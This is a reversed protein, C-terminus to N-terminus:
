NPKEKTKFSIGRGTVTRWLEGLFGCGLGFHITPYIAPLLPLYKLGKRMAIPVSWLLITLMYFGASGLLAYLALSWFFSLFILLPLGATFLAIVLTGTGLTGPHKRALRFRGIGYRKLQTFLAVLTERPYYMVALKMSTFSENWIKSVRYNFEVDECADFREDFYGVEEFVEKKYSAGSSTPNVYVEKDNYITSDLGHGIASKRALAVAQQFLTNDPPELFQPRSLVSVNKEAMLRATNMLLQNNDIFTHGDIFTIIEGTAIKVGINRGGSSRGVPNPLSKVRGDRATIEAVIETSNDESQGYIVLIEKKDDPYDQKLIQEITRAIYRAENKIPIVVSIRPLDKLEYKTM